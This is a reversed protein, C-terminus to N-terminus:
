KTHDLSVIAPTFATTRKCIRREVNWETQGHRVAFIKM